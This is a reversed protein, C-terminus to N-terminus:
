EEETRRYSPSGDESIVTPRSHAPAALPKRFFTRSAPVDSSESFFAFFTETAPLTDGQFCFTAPAAVFKANRAIPLQTSRATFLLYAGAMLVLM